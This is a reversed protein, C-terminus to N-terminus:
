SKCCAFGLFFIGDEQIRHTDEHLTSVRTHACDESIHRPEKLLSTFCVWSRKFWVAVLSEVKLVTVVILTVEFSNRFRLARMSGLAASTGCREVFEYFIGGQQVASEPMQERQTSAQAAITRQRSSSASVQECLEM